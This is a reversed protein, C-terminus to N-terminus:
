PTDKRQSASTDLLTRIETVLNRVERPLEEATPTAGLRWSEVWPIHWSRPAGGSVVEALHKLPKPLKGPADAVVVLGMLTVPPTAGAAWQRLAQRASNLGSWSSRCMLIVPAPATTIPWAHDAARWQADVSAMTSEGSGGHAGLWWAAPETPQDRQPLQDIWDPVPVGPQPNHPGTVPTMDPDTTIHEPEPAQEDLWPNVSM